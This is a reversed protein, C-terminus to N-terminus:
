GGEKRNLLSRIRPFAPVTDGALSLCDPELPAGAKATPREGKENGGKPADEPTPVGAVRALKTQPERRTNTEAGMERNARLTM